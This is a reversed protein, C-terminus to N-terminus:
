GRDLLLFNLNRPHKNKTNTAGIGVASDINKIDHAHIGFTHPIHAILFFITRKGRERTRYTCSSYFMSRNVQLFQFRGYAKRHIAARAGFFQPAHTGLHKIRVDFIHFTSCSNRGTHRM